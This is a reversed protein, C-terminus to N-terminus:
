TKSFRRRYYLFGKDYSGGRNIYRYFFSNRCNRFEKIDQNLINLQQKEKCHGIKNRRFFLYVLNTIIINKEFYINSKRDVIKSKRNLNRFDYITCRLDYIVEQTEEKQFYGPVM